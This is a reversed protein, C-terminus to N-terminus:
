GGEEGYKRDTTVKAVRDLGDHAQCACGTELQVTGSLLRDWYARLKNQSDLAESLRSLCSMM